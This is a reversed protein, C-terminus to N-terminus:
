APRRRIESVQFRNENSRDARSYPSAVFTAVLWIMAPVAYSMAPPVVLGEFLMELVARATPGLELAQVRENSLFLGVALSVSFVFYAQVLVFGLATSRLAGRNSLAGTLVLAFFTVTPVYGIARLNLAFRTAAGTTESSVTAIVHWWPNVKAGLLAPSGVEFHLSRDSAFRVGRLAFNAAGSVASVYARGLGPWPLLCMLLFLVGVSAAVVGPLGWLPVAHKRELSRSPM